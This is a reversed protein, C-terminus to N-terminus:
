IRRPSKLTTILIYTVWAILLAMFMRQIGNLYFVPERLWGAIGFGVVLSELVKMKM